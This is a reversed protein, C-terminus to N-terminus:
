MPYNQQLKQYEIIATDYDNAGYALHGIKLQARSRSDVPAGENDAIRQLSAMLESRQEESEIGQKEIASAKVLDIHSLAKLIKEEDSDSFKQYALVLGYYAEVLNPSDGYNSLMDNFASISQDLVAVDGDAAQYYCLGVLYQADDAWEGTPNGGM